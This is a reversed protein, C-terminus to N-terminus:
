PRWPREALPVGVGLNGPMQAAVAVVVRDVDPPLLADGGEHAIEADGAHDPAMGLTSRAPRASAGQDPEV